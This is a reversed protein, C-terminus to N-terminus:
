SPCPTCSGRKVLQQNVKLVHQDQRQKNLREVILLGKQDLLSLLKEDVEIPPEKTAKLVQKKKEITAWGKRHLWGLAITLFKKELASKKVVKDVSAEGDLKLLGRILRREPLGKKAHYRGENNLTIVTQKQEHVRTLKKMTLSLSARMVAAHALGSVKIIQDVPARGELKQLTLLTKQEHERLEVM